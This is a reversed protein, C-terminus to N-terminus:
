TKCHMNKAEIHFEESIRGFTDLGYTGTGGLMPRSARMQSDKPDCAM